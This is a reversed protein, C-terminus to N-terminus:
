LSMAKSATIARSENDYIEVTTEQLWGRIAAGPELYNGEALVWSESNGRIILQRREIVRVVTGRRIYGQSSGAPGPESLFHTFSVSVVGYGISDRVLPHTVPPLVPTETTSRRCGPFAFLVLLSFFLAFIVQDYGLSFRVRM